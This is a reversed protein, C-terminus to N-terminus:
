HIQDSYRYKAFVDRQPKHIYNTIHRNQTKDKVWILRADKKHSMPLCSLWLHSAAFRPRGDSAISNAIKIKM